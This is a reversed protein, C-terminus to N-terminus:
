VARRRALGAGLLALAVLSLAGPEPTENSATATAGITYGIDVLGYQYGGLVNTGLTNATCSNCYRMDKYQINGTPVWSAASVSSYFYDAVNSYYSVWYDHGATLTVDAIDTWIWGSGAAATSQALLTSTTYDWLSVVRTTNTAGNPTNLGLETVVIDASNATFRWGRAANSAGGSYFGTPTQDGLAHVTDAHAGSLAAAALALASIQKLFRNM